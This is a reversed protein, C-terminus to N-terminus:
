YGLSCKNRDAYKILIVMEIRGVNNLGAKAGIAFFAAQLLGVKDVVSLIADALDVFMIIVDDNLANQWLAQFTNQLRTAHAEISDLAIEMAEASAGSADQSTEYVEKLLEPNQLLAAVASGRTKGALAELLAAQSLDGIDEWVEAIETLIQYTSKYTGTDTLISIGEPSMETKTLEKVTAYLKSADEIVGDIDEGAAELETASTGRLRMSVVKLANSMANSDQLITNGATTLAIAEDIDNGAAVLAAASRQLGEGLESSTVAYKNAILVFKDVIEEAATGIDDTDLTDKFAQLSSTLSTTAGDVDIFGVRAYIAAQRALEMSEAATYGLAAWDTASNQIDTTIGAVENAVARAASGMERLSGTAEGTVIIHNTIASNLETIYSIGQRIQGWVQSLSLWYGMMQKVKQGASDIADGLINMQASVASTKVRVRGLEDFTFVLRQAEGNLNRVQATASKFDSGLSFKQVEGLTGAYTRLQSALDTMSGGSIGDLITGQSNTILNSKSTLADLETKIGNFQQRLKQLEPTAISSRNHISNFLEDIRHRANEIDTTKGIFNSVDMKYADTNQYRKITNLFSLVAARQGDDFITGRAQEIQGNSDTYFSIGQDNILQYSDVIGDATTKQTMIIKVIRGMTNGYQQVSKNVKDWEASDPTLDTVQTAAQNVTQTFTQASQTPPEVPTGTVGSTVQSAANNFSIGKSLLDTIQQLKNIIDDLQKALGDFNINDTKGFLDFLKKTATEAEQEGNLLKQTAEVAQTTNAEYTASWKALAEQSAPDTLKISAAEKLIKILQEYSSIQGQLSKTSGLSSILDVYPQMLHSADPTGAAGKRFISTQDGVVIDNLANFAKQLEVVTERAKRGYSAMQQVPNANKGSNLTVNFNIGSFTQTFERLEATTNNLFTNIEQISSLLPQFGNEDDVTGFSKRILALEDALRQLLQLLQTVDEKTAEIGAGMGSTGSIQSSEGAQQSAEAGAQAQAQAQEKTVQTTEAAEKQMTNQAAVYDDAYSLLNTKLIDIYQQQAQIDEQNYLGLDHEYDEQRQRLIDQQTVISNIHNKLTSDEPVYGIRQIVQEYVNAFDQLIIKYNNLTSETWDPDSATISFVSKALDDYKTSYSAGTRLVEQYARIFEYAARAGAESRDTAIRDDADTFISQILAAANKLQNRAASKNAATYDKDLTEQATNKNNGSVSAQAVKEMSKALEDHAAASDRAAKASKEEVDAITKLPKAVKDGVSGMNSLQQTVITLKDILEELKLLFPEFAKGFQQSGVEKALTALMQMSGRIAAISRDTDDLQSMFEGYNILQTLDIKGTKAQKDIDKWMDRVQQTVDKKNITFGITATTRAVQQLAAEIEKTFQEMNSGISIIYSNDSPM